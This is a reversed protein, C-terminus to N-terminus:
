FSPSKRPDAPFPIREIDWFWHLGVGCIVLIFVIIYLLHSKILRLNIAWQIILLLILM